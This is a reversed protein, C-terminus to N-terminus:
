MKVFDGHDIKEETSNLYDLAEGKQWYTGKM